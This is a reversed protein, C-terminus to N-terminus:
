THSNRKSVMKMMLKQNTDVFAAVIKASTFAADLVLKFILAIQLKKVM